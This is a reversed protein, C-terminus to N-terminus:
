TRAQADTKMGCSLRSRCPTWRHPRSTISWHCRRCTCLWRHSPRKSPRTWAWPGHLTWWAATAVRSEAGLEHCQESTAWRLWCLHSAWPTPGAFSSMCQCKQLTTWSYPLHSRCRRQDPGTPWQSSLYIGVFIWARLSALPSLWILSQLQGPENPSCM